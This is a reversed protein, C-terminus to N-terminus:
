MSSWSFVELSTTVAANQRFMGLKTRIARDVQADTDRRFLPRTAVSEKNPQTTSPTTSSSSKSGGAKVVRKVVANTVKGLAKAKAKGKPAMTLVSFSSLNAEWVPISVFNCHINSSTTTTTM